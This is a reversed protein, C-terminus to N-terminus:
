HRWSDTWRTRRTSCCNCAWISALGLVVSWWLWFLFRDLVGPPLVDPVIMALAAPLGIATGLSPLVLIRNLFM